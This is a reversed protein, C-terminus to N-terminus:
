SPHTGASSPELVAGGGTDRAAAIRRSSSRAAHGTSHGEARDSRAMARVPTIAAPPLMTVPAATRSLWDPSPQGVQGSHVFCLRTAALELPSESTCAQTSNPLRSNTVNTMITATTTKAAAQRNPRPSACGSVAPSRVRSSQSAATWGAPTAACARSPPITTSVLSSGTM